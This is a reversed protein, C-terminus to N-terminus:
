KYHRSDPPAIISLTPVSILTQIPVVVGPCFPCVRPDGDTHSVSTRSSVLSSALHKKVSSHRSFPSLGLPAGVFSYKSLTRARSSSTEEYTDDYSTELLGVTVSPSLM